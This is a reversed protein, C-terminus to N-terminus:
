DKVIPEIVYSFHYDKFPLLYEMRPLSKWSDVCGVGMSYGDVNLFVNERPKMLKGHKQTSSKLPGSDLDKQSYHSVSFNFLSDGYIKLGLGSNNTIELWRNDCRNGFYQPRAYMVSMDSVSCNYIGVNSAQKRDIENEHPGRGYYKVNKFESLLEFQNGFRYINSHTNESIKGEWGSQMLNDESQGKIVKLENSIKVTGNESITYKQIVEADGNLIKILVNILICGEEKKNEVTINKFNSNKIVDKWESYLQPTKAGYDNDTPPRWFNVVGGHKILEQKNITYSSIASTNKDFLFEFFQGAIIIEDQSEKLRLKEYKFESNPLTVRLDQKLEFQEFAIVHDKPLLIENENLKITVNLFFDGNTLESLLSLNIKKSNRPQIDINNLIETKICVGNRFLKWELYCNSLSKFYNKNFLEVKNGKVLAIRVPQYVKKVEYM